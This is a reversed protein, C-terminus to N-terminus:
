AARRARAVTPAEGKGENGLRAFIGYNAGPEPEPIAPGRTPRPRAQEPLRLAPKHEVAVPGAQSRDTRHYSGIVGAFVTCLGLWLFDTTDFGRPLTLTGLPGAARLKPKIGRKAMDALYAEREDQTMLAWRKDREAAIEPPLDARDEPETWGRGRSAFEAMVLSALAERADEPGLAPAERRVEHRWGMYVGLPSGGLVAGAAIVASLFGGALGARMWSGLVMGVGVFAGIGCAIGGLQYGSFRGALAWAGAGIAGAGLALALGKTISM